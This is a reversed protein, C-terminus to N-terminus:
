EFRANVTIGPWSDTRFPSAPFGDTSFLNADEPADSWGYRVAAPKSVNPSSIVVKNGQIEGKAYHFVKDDGAIEFGKLYGYRDKITLGNEANKFSIIAKSGDVQMGEYMPSAYPMNQGYDNKLAQTALRHAV